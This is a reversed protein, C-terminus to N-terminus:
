YFRIRNDEIDANEMFSEAIESRLSAGNAQDYAVKESAADLTATGQAKNIPQVFYVANNGAIPASLTNVPTKFAEGLVKPENGIKNISSSNFNVLMVTDVATGMKSALEGISNADLAKLEEAIKAAKAKRVLESQLTRKVDDFPVYGKANEEALALVIYANDAEFIESVKGVSSSFAWQVAPRSGPIGMVADMNSQIILSPIVSYGASSASDAFSNIDNNIAIFNSLKNYLDTNTASSPTVEIVLEAVNYKDVPETKDTVKVLHLGYSTRVEVVENLEAGFAADKFGESVGRVAAVETFWGLEGGRESSGDVSFARALEAFDAGEQLATALSDALFSARDEDATSLMIHNVLLSDAAVKKDIIRIARYTNGAFDGLVVENLNAEQIMERVTPDFSSLSQYADVYPVDSKEAIIDTYHAGALSDKLELMEEKAAAYDDKSPTLRVVLANVSRSEEQKLSEKRQNYLAKVDSETVTVASDPLSSLPRSVYLIDMNVLGSEFRSKVDVNNAGILGGLLMDYKEQLKSYRLSREVFMWFRKAAAMESNEVGPSNITKLFNLLASKDFAGTEPNHFMQMQSIMPSINDGAVLDFLEEKTVQLGLAAAERDLLIENVMSQYVSERIQGMAGEPLSSQGSQMKYVEIMEDMRKQYEQISITEGDVDIVQEQTQRFFSSGSNLFDGLIFAMLALGVFGVLLGAKGRIKELTAM